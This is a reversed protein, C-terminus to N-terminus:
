QARFLYDHHSLKSDLEYGKEALFAVLEEPSRNEILMWQFRYREFDIGKLVELEGGEVDLSLLTPSYPARAADLVATMTMVPVEIIRVENNQSYSQAHGLRDSIDSHGELPTSMLHATAIKMTPSAFTDGVCAVNFLANRSHSRNFKLKEFQEPVPEILVGTWGDFLELTLTNSQSRGDNAGIEVYFGQKVGLASRLREDLGELGYFQLGAWKEVIRIRHGFRLRTARM